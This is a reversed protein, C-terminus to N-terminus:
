WKKKCYNADPGWDEAPDHENPHIDIDHNLLLRDSRKPYVSRKEFSKIVLQSYNSFNVHSEPSEPWFVNFFLM